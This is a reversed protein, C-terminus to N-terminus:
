VIVSWRVLDYIVMVVVVKLLSDLFFRCRDVHERIFEITWWTSSGSIILRVLFISPGSTQAWHGHYMVELGRSQYGKQRLFISVSEVTLDTFADHRRRKWRSNRVKFLLCEVLHGITMRSPIAHPNIIVDPVIGEATFPM